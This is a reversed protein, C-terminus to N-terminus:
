IPVIIGYNPCLAFYPSNSNQQNLCSISTHPLAISSKNQFIKVASCTPTYHSLFAPM